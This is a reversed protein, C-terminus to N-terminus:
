LGNPASKVELNAFLGEACDVFLGVPRKVRSEMLRNVKLSPEKGNNVFVRVLKATVEIRAHFWDNPDPVPDIPKEFQGTRNKRLEDWTHEPWAIYQVARSRFPETAKFNFPRFYIGEFTKEDIINFVVGLFSPRQDKGKLDLEIVGTEFEVARSSALGANGTKGSDGTANLRAVMKGSMPVSEATANSVKWINADAMRTLDLKITEEGNASVAGVLVLALGFIFTKKMAPKIEYKRQESRRACHRIHVTM